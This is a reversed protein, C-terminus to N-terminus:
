KPNQLEEKLKEKMKKKRENFFKDFNCLYLKEEDDKKKDFNLKPLFSTGEKLSKKIEAGDDSKIWEILRKENKSSNDSGLLTQLNPLQNSMRKWEEFRSLAKEIKEEDNTEERLRKEFEKDYKFGKEPHMHDDHWTERNHRDYLLKLALKTFKGKELELIHNIQKDTAKYEELLNKLNGNDGMIDRAKKLKDDTGQSFRNLLCARYIYSELVIKNRINKDEKYFAYVVPILANYSTINSNSFGLDTIKKAMIEVAKKIKKWNEKIETVIENDKDNFSIKIKIAQGTCFLCTKVIFDSSIKLAKLSESKQLDAFEKKSEPWLTALRSLLDQSHSLQKGGNNLRRFIETVETLTKNKEIEHKLLYINTFNEKFEKANDQLKKGQPNNLIDRVPIWWTEKKIEDKKKFKFTKNDYGNKNHYTNFCLIKDNYTGNIAISISTLRQQGDIILISYKDIDYNELSYNSSMNEPIEFCDIHKREKKPPQWTCFTGIFYKKYISDFLNEIQIPKWVFERQICPILFHKKNDKFWEYLKM